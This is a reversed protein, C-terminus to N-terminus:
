DEYISNKINHSIKTVNDKLLSFLSEAMSNNM